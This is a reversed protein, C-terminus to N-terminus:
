LFDWQFEMLIGNFWWKGMFNGKFDWAAGGSELVEARTGPGVRGQLLGQGAAELRGGVLGHAHWRRPIGTVYRPADNQHKKQFAIEPATSHSKLPFHHKKKKKKKSPQHNHITIEQYNLVSCAYVGNVLEIHWYKDVNVGLLGHVWNWADSTIYSKAVM